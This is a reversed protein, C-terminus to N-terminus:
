TPLCCVQKILSAAAILDPAVCGFKEYGHVLASEMKWGPYRIVGVEIGADIMCPRSTSQQCRLIWQRLVVLPHGDGIVAPRRRNVDAPARDAARETLTRWGSGTLIWTETRAFAQIEFKFHAEVEAAAVPKALRDSNRFRRLLDDTERQQVIPRCPVNLAPLHKRETRKEALTERGRVRRPHHGRMRECRDTDWDQRSGFAIRPRKGIQEIFHILSFASDIDMKLDMQRGPLHPACVLRSDLNESRVRFIEVPCGCLHNSMM